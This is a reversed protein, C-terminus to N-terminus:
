GDDYEVDHLFLGNPPASNGALSRDGSALIEALSDAPERGRLRESEREVLTGVISRVMRRLFGDAGIAFEIEDANNRRFHAYFVRRVTSMGEEPAMAFASYDHEGVLIAAERNARDLDPDRSLRWAYRRRHPYFYAAYYLYYRYHRVRADYRAHFGSPVERAALARVDRPLASNVAEPFSEIPITDRDSDFSVYQARAHVGSDTRGAAVIPIPHGHIAALAEEVTGQVTRGERQVQYGCFDTGDYAIRLLIRRIM